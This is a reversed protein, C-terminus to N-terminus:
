ISVSVSASSWVLIRESDSLNTPLPCVKQPFGVAAEHIMAYIRCARRRLGHCATAPEEGRSNKEDAAQHYRSPLGTCCCSDACDLFACACAVRNGEQISARRKAQPHENSKLIGDIPCADTLRAARLVFEPSQSLSHTTSPGQPRRRNRTYDRLRAM